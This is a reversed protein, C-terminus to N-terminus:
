SLKSSTDSDPLVTPAAQKPAPAATPKKVLYDVVEGYGYGAKIAGATDFDSKSALYEAIEKDSYGAKRAGEVDFNM